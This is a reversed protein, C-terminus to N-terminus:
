RVILVPMESQALVKTVVSGLMLGQLAGHGHSGMVILRCRLEKATRAIIGGPEGVLLKEHHPVKARALARRADRVANEGNQEHHRAVEKAGIASSFRGAVPPDMNLLVVHPKKGFQGIHRAVYRAARMSCASGDVALLIKM